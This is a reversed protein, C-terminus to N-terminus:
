RGGLEVLLLTEGAGVRQTRRIPGGPADLVATIESGVALGCILALGEEDTTGRATPAPKRTVVTTSRLRVVQAQDRGITITVPLDPVPTRQVADVVEVIVSGHGEAQDACGLVAPSNWNRAGVSESTVGVRRRGSVIEPAQAVVEAEGGGVHWGVVGLRASRTGRGSVVVREPVGIIPTEVLWRNVIWGVGPVSAFTVTGGFPGAVRLVDPVNVYEFTM